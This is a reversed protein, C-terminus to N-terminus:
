FKLLNQIYSIPSFLSSLSLSLFFIKLGVGKFPKLLAKEFNWPSTKSYDRALADFDEQLNSHRLYLNTYSNIANKASNRITNVIEKFNEKPMVGNGRNKVLFSELLDLSYIISRNASQFRRKVLEQNKTINTM